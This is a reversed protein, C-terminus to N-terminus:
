VRGEAKSIAAQMTEIMINAADYEASDGPKLDHDPNADISWGKFVKLALKCAELLEPSAAILRANAQTEADDTELRAIVQNYYAGGQTPKRVAIQHIIAGYSQPRKEDNWPGATHQTTKM